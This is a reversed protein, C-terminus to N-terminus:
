GGATSAVLTESVKWLRAAVAQDHTKSDTEIRRKGKLYSGTVQSLDPSAAAWVATEAGKEPSSMFPWMLAGVIRYGLPMTAGLGTKVFGPDVCNATVGTGQLRNALEYTFLVLALKSNNYARQGFRRESQLDDFDITGGRHAGSVVNLVRSPASAKLLDLLLNTLLFPALYNVAFTLELGDPTVVRKGVDVGANNVLVHLQDFRGTVERALRRVERQSALDALLLQVQESGAVAEIRRQAAKGRQEDRGVMILTAGREALARATAEGIGSTAGTILVNRGAMSRDIM